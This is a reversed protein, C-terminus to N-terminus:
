IVMLQKLFVIIEFPNILAVQDRYKNQHAIKIQNQYKEAFISEEVIPNLIEELCYSFYGRLVKIKERKKEDYVELEVNEEGKTGSIIAWIGKQQNNVILPESLKSKLNQEKFIKESFCCDLIFLSHKCNM